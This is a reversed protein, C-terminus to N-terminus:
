AYSLQAGAVAAVALRIPVTWSAARISSPNLLRHYLVYSWMLISHFSQPFLFVNASDFSPSPLHACAGLDLSAPEIPHGPRPTTTSM